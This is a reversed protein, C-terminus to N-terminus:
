AQLAHERSARARIQAFRCQRDRRGGPALPGGGIMSLLPSVARELARRARM